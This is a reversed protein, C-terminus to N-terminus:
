TKQKQIIKYVLMKTNSCPCLYEKILSYNSFFAGSFKDVDHYLPYEWINCTFYIANKLQDRDLYQGGAILDVIVYDFGETLAQHPVRDNGWPEIFLKHGTIINYYQFQFSQSEEDPSLVIVVPKHDLSSSDTKIFNLIEKINKCDEKPTGFRADVNWDDRLAFGTSATFSLKGQRDLTIRYNYLRNLPKHRFLDTFSSLHIALGFLLALSTLFVRAIKKKLAFIGASIIIALPPLIPMIHSPALVRFSSFLLYAVIVWSSLFLAYFVSDNKISFTIKSKILKLLLILASVALLLSYFLRLFTNVIVFFYFTIRKLFYLNSFYAAEAPWVKDKVEFIRNLIDKFSVYYWFFSILFGIFFALFINKVIIRREPPTVTAFSKWLFILFPAAITFPFEWKTLATLGLAIGLLMSYKRNKFYDTKLLFYLSAAIMCMLIFESYIRRSMSILGPFSSFIFAALLGTKENFIKKAIGYISFLALALYISNVMVEMESNVGFIFYTLSYSVTALLSSLHFYYGIYNGLTTVFSKLLAFSSFIMLLDHLSFHLEKLSFYFSPAPLLDTLGNGIPARKDALIWILNILFVSAVLLILVLLYKSTGPKSKIKM